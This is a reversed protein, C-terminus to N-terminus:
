GAIEGKTTLVVETVPVDRGSARLAEKVMFMLGGCCPVEMRVVTIRKVGSRRLIETLKQQHAQFDDLKPCACVVARGKIFDEQFNGYAFPGCHAALVLDAGKLFPATPSVLALQVPWHGLLSPAKGGRAPVPERKFEQVATSPCGCPLIPQPKQAELHKKVAEDDFEETERREITLAGRPCEGICAGLGDCYNESILRAKGKYIEIAGEACKLACAGCGDCKAEDIRIIDRVVKTKM